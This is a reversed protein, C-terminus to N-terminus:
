RRPQLHLVRKRHLNLYAFRASEAVVRRKAGKPIVLVDGERMAHLEGDIEVQGNGEIGLMAVEHTANIHEPAGAGEPWCVLTLNVDEGDFGWQAGGDTFKALVEQVNINVSM